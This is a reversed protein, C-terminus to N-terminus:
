AGKLLFLTVLICGVILAGFGCLALIRRLRRKLLWRLQARQLRQAKESEIKLWTWHLDTTDDYGAVM